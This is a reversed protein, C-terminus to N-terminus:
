YHRNDSYNGATINLKTKILGVIESPICPKQFYHEIQLAAARQITDENKLHSMFIFVKQKLDSSVMTKERILFGDVGPVMLETLIVDPREKEILELGKVGDECCIVQFNETELRKRLLDAAFRDSDIILVKGAGLRFDGSEIYVRNGTLHAKNLRQQALNFIESQVDPLTETTFFEHFSVIGASVTIPKIFVESKEIEHRFREALERGATKDAFPLYYAFAPGDLKFLFQNQEAIQGLVYAIGLTIDNLTSLGFNLTIDSIGDLELFILASDLNYEYCNKVENKLYELLYAQNYLRTQPCRILRNEIEAKTQELEFAELARKVTVLLDNPDVPKTIFKYVQGKNISDIIADVDTFGTLIIRITKPTIFVTKELFEVGTMRPMRQDSIIMHIREPEPHNEVLELGAFGDDATLVEYEEELTSTVARLNELEDDVVLITHKKSEGVVPELKKVASKRLSLGRKKVKALLSQETEKEM